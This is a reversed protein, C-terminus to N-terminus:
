LESKIIIDYCRRCFPKDDRVFLQGNVFPGECGKCVFCDPCYKQGLFELQDDDTRLSKKCKKCKPMRLRVHCKECYAHFNHVIFQIGEDAEFTGDGSFSRPQSSPPLFPDGCEACFFHQEHYTREGLQEDKLTVYNPDAIATQCHHCRPAFNEYYDLSCYPRGEYECVAFDLLLQGCTTCKLCGPHWSADTTHVARGIVPNGCGGCCLGGKSRERPLPGLDRQRIKRIVVPDVGNEEPGGVSIVPM